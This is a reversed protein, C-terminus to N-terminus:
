VRAGHPFAMCDPKARSTKLDFFNQVALVSALGIPWLALDLL